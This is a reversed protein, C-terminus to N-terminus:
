DRLLGAKGDEEMTEASGRGPTLNRLGGSLRAEASNIMLVRSDPAFLASFCLLAAGMASADRGLAGCLIEPPVVGIPNVLRFRAKVRAHLDSQIARPLISDLIVAEVDIVAVVAIIAEVLAEACDELWAELPALAEPPPAELERMHAIEVGHARLHNLLVYISARHVLCDYRAPRASASDLRSPSVPLPALAASNGHRGPHLKGNQVLGGGVFTDISIHMFDQLRSGVGQVLEALAAASADNEVFVPAELDARFFGRLDVADWQPGLEPPFDLEESWGGLFHPAAIGIGQIQAEPLRAVWKRFANLAADGAHRVTEPDPYPYDRSFRARVEGSFDLLLAELSRRGIKVGVSFLRKERVRYLISPSGRGGGKRKGVREIFGGEELGDVIGAVAPPTLDAERALDSKSAEKLRRIAELVFRENYRRLRVSNSGKGSM